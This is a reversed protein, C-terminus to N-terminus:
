ELGVPKDFYDSVPRRVILLFPNFCSRRQVAKNRAENLFTILIASESDVVYVLRPEFAFCGEDNTTLLVDFHGKAM